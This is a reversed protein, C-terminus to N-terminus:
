LDNNNRWILEDSTVAPRKIRYQVSCPKWRVSISSKGDFRKPGIWLVEDIVPLYALICDVEDMTYCKSTIRRQSNKTGMNIVVSGHTGAITDTYKIQARYLKGQWDIIADYRGHSDLPLSIYAGLQIARLAIKHFSIQEKSHSNLNSYPKDRIEKGIPARRKANHRANQEERSLPYDKLWLQLTSKSVPLKAQIDGLSCREECRLRLAEQKYELPQKMTKDNRRQM